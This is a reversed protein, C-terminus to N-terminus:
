RHGSVEQQACVTWQRSQHEDVDVESAESSCALGRVDDESRNITNEQHKEGCSLPLIPVSHYVDTHNWEDCGCMSQFVNAREREKRIGGGVKERKEKESEMTIERANESEKSGTDREVARGKGHSGSDVTAACQQQRGVTRQRSDWQGCEM